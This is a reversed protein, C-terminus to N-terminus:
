METSGWCAPLMDGPNRRPQPMESVGSSRFALLHGLLTRASADTGSQLSKVKSCGIVLLRM